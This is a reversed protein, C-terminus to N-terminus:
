TARRIYGYLDFRVDLVPNDSAAENQQRVPRVRIDVNDLFLFPSTSEFEYFVRQLAELNGSIQGRISIRQFVGEERSPLIQTSRLEGRAAEVSSKIRNQLEAAALSENGSQITGAGSVGHGKLRALETQLDSLTRGAQRARALVSELQEGSNRAEAYHELLPQVLGSYVFWLLVILITLALARSLRPSLAVNV